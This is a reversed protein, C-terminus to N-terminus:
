SSADTTIMSNQMSCFVDIYKNIADGPMLTRGGEDIM